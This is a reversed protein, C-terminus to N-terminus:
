FTYNEHSWNMQRAKNMDDNPFEPHFGFICIWNCCKARFQGTHSSVQWAIGIAHVLVISNQSNLTRVVETPRPIAAGVRGPCRECCKTSKFYIAENSYNGFIMIINQTVSLTCAAVVAIGMDAFCYMYRYIYIYIYIHIYISSMSNSHINLLM